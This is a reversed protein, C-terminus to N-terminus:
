IEDDDEDEGNNSGEDSNEEDSSEFTNPPVSYLRLVQKNPDKILVYKGDEQRMMLDCVMKVIGWMNQLSMNIQTSLDKPKFFQTALIAHDYANTRNVRSIFGLKMVDAGALISQAAWKGLKFSNNKLETALIAGRQQDIKQRWEVGGSFRSDWENIAYSTLFLDEGKKPTWGHLECRLVLNISNM